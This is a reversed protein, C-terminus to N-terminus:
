ESKAQALPRATSSAPAPPPLFSMGKKTSSKTGGDDSTGSMSAGGSGPRQPCAVWRHQPPVAHSRPRSQRSPAHQERGEAAHVPALSHQSPMLQLPPRQQLALPPRHSDLASHQSPVV